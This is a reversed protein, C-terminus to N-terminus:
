RLLQAYAASPSEPIKSSSMDLLFLLSLESGSMHRQPAGAWCPVKYLGYSTFDFHANSHPPHPRNLSSPGPCCLRSRLSPGQPLAIYIAKATTSMRSIADMVCLMALASKIPLVFSSSLSLTLRHIDPTHSLGRFMLSPGM